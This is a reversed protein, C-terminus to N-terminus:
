RGVELMGFLETGGAMEGPRVDFWVCLVVLVVREGCGVLLFVGSRVGVWDSRVVFLGGSGFIGLCDVVLEAVPCFM